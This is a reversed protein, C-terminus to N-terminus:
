EIAQCIFNHSSSCGDVWMAGNHITVCHQNRNNYKPEGPKWKLFPARKGTIESLFEGEQSRDNIDLLFSTGQDLKASIADFESESKISALQGGKQKCTNIASAWPQTLTREIYFYRSGILEFMPPINKIVKMTNLSVNISTLTEQIASLQGEMKMQIAELQGKIRDQFVQRDEAIMKKLSETLTSEQREIQDKLATQQAEIRQLKAQTENLKVNDCTKWQDQHLAIHNILPMLATLCFEGCQKPPDELLCVSRDSNASSINPGCLFLVYLVKILYTLLKSM